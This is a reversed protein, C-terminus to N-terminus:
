KASASNTSACPRAGDLGPKPKPPLPYLGSVDRVFCVPSIGSVAFLWFPLYLATCARSLSCHLPLACATQEPTYAPNTCCPRTIGATHCRASSHSRTPRAAHPRLAPPNSPKCSRLRAGSRDALWVGTSISAATSSNRRSCMRQPGRLSFHTGSCASGAVTHGAALVM